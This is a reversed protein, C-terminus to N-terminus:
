SGREFGSAVWRFLDRGRLIALPTAFFAIWGTIAAAIVEDESEIDWDWYGESDYFLALFPGVVVALATAVLALRRWGEERDDRLAVIASLFLFIAVSLLVGLLISAFVPPFEGFVASLALMAAVSLVVAWISRIVLRYLASSSGLKQEKLSEVGHSTQGHPYTSAADTPSDGATLNQQDSKAALVSVSRTSGQKTLIAYSVIAVLLLVAHTKSQSGLAVFLILNLLWFAACFAIAPGRGLPRRLILFRSLLPPALGVIWTFAFSLWIEGWGLDSLDM